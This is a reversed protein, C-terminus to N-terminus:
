AWEEFIRALYVLMDRTPNLRLPLDHSPPIKQYRSAERKSGFSHSPEQIIKNLEKDENM